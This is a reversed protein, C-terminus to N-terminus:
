LRIEKNLTVIGLQLPSSFLFPLLPLPHAYLLDYLQDRSLTVSQQTWGELLQMFQIQVTYRPSFPLFNIWWRQRGSTLAKGWPVNPRRSKLNCMHPRQAPDGQILQSARPHCTLLVCCLSSCPTIDTQAFYGFVASFSATGSIAPVLSLHRCCCARLHHKFIDSKTVLYQLFYDPTKKLDETNM